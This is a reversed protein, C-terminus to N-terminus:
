MDINPQTESSVGLARTLAGSYWLREAAAIEREMASSVESLPPRFLRLHETSSRSTAWTTIQDISCAVPEDVIRDVLGLRQGEEASIVPGDLVLRKASAIGIIRGLLESTSNSVLFGLSNEPLRFSARPSAVRMDCSWTVEAGGGIAPGDIAAITPVPSELLARSIANWERISRETFAFSTRRIPLSSENLDQGSCFARGHGTLVVGASGPRRSGQRIADVLAIRATSDLANMIDPRNIAVVTVDDVVETEVTAPQNM